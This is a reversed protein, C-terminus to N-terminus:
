NFYINNLLWVIYFLTESEIKNQRFEEFQVHGLEQGNEMLYSAVDISLDEEKKTKLIEALTVGLVEESISNLHTPFCLDNSDLNRMKLLGEKIFINARIIDNDNFFELSPNYNVFTSDKLIFGLHKVIIQVKLIRNTKTKSKSIM